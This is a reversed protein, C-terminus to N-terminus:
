GGYRRVAERAAKCKESHSSVMPNGIAMECWCSGRKLGKIVQVLEAVADLGTTPSNALEQLKSDEMKPSSTILM